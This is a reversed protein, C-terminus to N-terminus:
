DADGKLGIHALRQVNLLHADTVGNNIADEIDHLIAVLARQAPTTVTTKPM